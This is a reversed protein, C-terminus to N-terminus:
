REPCRASTWPRGRSGGALVAAPAALGEAELLPALRRAVATMRSVLLVEPLRTPSSGPRRPRRATAAPPPQPCSTSWRARHPAHWNEIEGPRPRAGERLRSASSSAKRPWRPSRSSGTAPGSGPWAHFFRMLDQSRRRTGRSRKPLRALLPRWRSGPRGARRVFANRLEDLDECGAAAAPAASARRPVGRTGSCSGCRRGAPDRPRLAQGPGGRAGMKELREVERSMASATLFMSPSPRRDRSRRAARRLTAPGDMFPMMVDLLIADPRAEQAVKLCETGSGAEVVQIKHMALTLRVLERSDADDDTVLVKM